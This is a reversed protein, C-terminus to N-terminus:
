IRPKNPPIQPLPAASKGKRNNPIESKVNAKEKKDLNSDYVFELDALFGLHHEMYKVPTFIGQSWGLSALWPDVIFAGELQQVMAEAIKDLYDAAEEDTTMAKVGDIDKSNFRWEDGQCNMIIYVHSGTHGAKHAVIQIRESPFLTLLKDAAALSFTTCSGIQSSDVLEASKKIAGRSYHGGIPQIMNAQTGLRVNSDPMSSLKKIIKDSDANAHINGQFTRADSCAFSSYKQTVLSLLRQALASHTFISSGDPTTTNLPHKNELFKNLIYEAIARSKNVSCYLPTEKKESMQNLEDCSMSDIIKKAKEQVENVAEKTADPNETRFTILQILTETNSPPESITNQKQEYQRLVSKPPSSPQNSRQAGASSSSRPRSTPFSNPPPTPLPRNSRPLIASSASEVIPAKPAEQVKVNLEDKPKDNEIKALESLKDKIGYNRTMNPFLISIDFRIILSPEKQIENIDDAIQKKNLILKGNTSVLDYPYNRIINSLSELSSANKIDEIFTEEAKKIHEPKEQGIM